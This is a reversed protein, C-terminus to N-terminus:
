PWVLLLYAGYGSLLMGGEGRTIRLGTLAFWLAIATTILMVPIDFTAIDIPMDIPAIL